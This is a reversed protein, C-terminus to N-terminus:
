EARRVYTREGTDVVIVDDVSVFPPVGVRVGNSLTAPKFSSSATQGKVVPETEVVTLTVHQPLTIGLAKGEFFSVQLTMGDALFVGDDGLVEPGVNTQEYTETDMMVADEGEMYLYTCDIEDLRAREVMESARFRVNKKTGSTISKMEVQNYAGSKGTKTAETKSVRWLQDEFQLLHGKRITNGNVKM